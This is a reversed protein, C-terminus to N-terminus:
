GAICAEPLFHLPAIRSLQKLRVMEQQFLVFGKQFAESFDYKLNALYNECSQQDLFVGEYHECAMETLQKLSDEKSLVLAKHIRRIDDAHREFSDKRACWLAFVFPLGTKEKWLQALDYVHPDRKQYFRRIAEDAILLEGASDPEDCQTFTIDRDKLIYRILHVSTFSYATLKIKDGCRLAEIPKNLFLYISRVPGDASVSLNPLIYYLEYNKAYEFSSIVSVDIRGQNMGRNLDTIKGRVIEFQSPAHRKLVNYYVPLVNLVDVVGVRIMDSWNREMIM